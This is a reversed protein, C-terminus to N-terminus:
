EEEIGYQKIKRYLTRESIGLDQAAYKRKHNNKKLAKIIMEKEKQELSFSEDAADAIDEIRTIDITKPDVVKPASHGGKNIFYASQAFTPPTYIDPSLTKDVETPYQNIMNGTFTDKQINEFVIKKLDNVDKKLDFLIKYLLDRESINGDNNTGAMRFLAPTQGYQNEPLYKRLDDTDIERNM